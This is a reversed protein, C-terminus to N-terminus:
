PVSKRACSPPQSPKQKKLQPPLRADHPFSVAFAPASIDPRVLSSAKVRLLPPRMPRHQDLVVRRRFQSNPGTSVAPDHPLSAFLIRAPLRTRSSITTFSM